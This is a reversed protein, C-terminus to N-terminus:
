RPARRARGSRRRHGDDSPHGSDDAFLEIGLVEVTTM